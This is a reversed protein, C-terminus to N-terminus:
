QREHALWDFNLADIIRKRLAFATVNMPPEAWEEDLIDWIRRIRFRLSANHHALHIVDAVLSEKSFTMLRDFTAQDDNTM